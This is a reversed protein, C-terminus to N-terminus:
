RCRADCGSECGREIQACTEECRAKDDREFAHDVFCRHECGRQASECSYGCDECDAPLSEAHRIAAETAAEKADVEAPDVPRSYLQVSIRGRGGNTVPTYRYYDSLRMSLKGPGSPCHPGSTGGRLNKDLLARGVEVRKATKMEYSAAVYAPVAGPALRYVIAYCRGRAIPFVVGPFSELKGEVAAGEATMGDTWAAIQAARERQAAAAAVVPDNGCSSPAALLLGSCAATKAAAPLCARPATCFRCGPTATCPACDAHAACVNANAAAPAPPQTQREPASAAHAAPAAPPPAKPTACATAIVLAALIRRM